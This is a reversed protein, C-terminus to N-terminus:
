VRNLRSVLVRLEDDSSQKTKGTCASCPVEQPIQDDTM